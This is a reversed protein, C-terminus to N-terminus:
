RKGKSKSGKGKRKPKAKPPTKTRAYRATMVKSTVVKMANRTDPGMYRFIMGMNGKQQFYELIIRTRRRLTTTGEMNRMNHVGDNNVLLKNNVFLRSGEDSNISFKYPGGKQIGLTGSWRVAFNAAKDFGKWAVKSEKYNVKSVFRQVNAVANMNPIKTYSGKLDYYVEEKFGHSPAYKMERKTVYTYRKAKPGKKSLICGSAASKQFYELRFHHQGKVLKGKGYKTKMSHIGDHVIWEDNDIYLKSGDDSELKFKWMGTRDIIL